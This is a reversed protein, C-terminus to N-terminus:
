DIDISWIFQVEDPVDAYVFKNINSLKADQSAYFKCAVVNNNQTEVKLRTCDNEKAWEICEQFLKTGIGMGRYENNVRIDWVVVLDDRDQLMNVGKTNYALIAGGVRKEGEFASIVAWNTLDFQNILLSPNDDNSDYDKFQPKVPEEVLMIGGLGSRIYQLKYVSEVKYRISIKSYEELVQKTPKEVVLKTENM